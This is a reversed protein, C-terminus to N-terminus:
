KPKKLGSMMHTHRIYHIDQIYISMNILKDITPANKEVQMPDILVIQNCINVSNNQSRM